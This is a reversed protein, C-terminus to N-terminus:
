PKRAPRIRAHLPVTDVRAVGVRWKGPKRTILNGIMHSLVQRWAVLHREEKVVVLRGALFMLFRYDTEVEPLLAMKHGINNDIHWGLASYARLTLWM